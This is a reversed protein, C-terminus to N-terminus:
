AYMALQIANINLYVQFTFHKQQDKVFLPGLDQAEM